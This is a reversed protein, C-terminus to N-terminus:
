HFSKWILSTKYVLPHLCQQLLRHLLVKYLSSYTIIENDVRERNKKRRNQVKAKRLIENGIVDYSFIQMTMQVLNAKSLNKSFSM